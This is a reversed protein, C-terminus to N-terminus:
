PPGDDKPDRGIIGAAAAARMGIALGNAVALAYAAWLTWSPSPTGQLDTVTIVILTAAAAAAALRGADRANLRRGQGPRAEAASKLWAPSTLIIMAIILWDASDPGNTGLLNVTLASGALLGAIMTDLILPLLEELTPIERQQGDEDPPDPVPQNPPGRDLEERARTMRTDLDQPPRNEEGPETRM